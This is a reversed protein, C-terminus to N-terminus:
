TVWTIISTPSRRRRGPAAARDVPLEVQPRDGVRDDVRPDVGAPMVSSSATASITSPPKWSSASARALYSRARSDDVWSDVYKTPEISIHSISRSTRRRAAAARGAIRAARVRDRLRPHDAAEALRGAEDVPRVELRDDGVARRRRRQEAPDQRSQRDPRVAHREARRRRSEAEPRKPTPVAGASATTPPTLERAAPRDPLRAAERPTPCAGSSTPGRSRGAAGPRRASRMSRPAGAGARRRTSRTSGCRGASCRARLRRPRPVRRGGLHQRRDRDPRRRAGAVRRAAARRADAGPRAAGVPAPPDLLVRVLDAVAWAEGEDLGVERLGPPWSAPSACSTTGPAARPRRRRRRRRARRDPRARALGLLAARDSRRRGAADGVAFVRETRARTTRPSRRRRRRRGRDGRRDRRPVGAYRRELEDLQTPPRADRRPRGPRPRRRLGGPAARHVPELQLERLAEDLSPVGRAASGRRRAAGVARRQRRPGRPVGLLRPVPLRRAVPAPGREWLEGARACTSSGPGRTASSSSPAGPRQAPGPGRGAVAPRAAEVRRAGQRAYARRTASRARPRRSGTTTSSWRASRGAGNSYAFVDEDVGGGDTVVDYLLFDHPRPSCAGGTSSRSSRASTATSWARTPGSTSTARRFEMGYKEGFGEVQGHGFMPLGPLTALLTAVGFYKDGKGFQEVATKEDPNNMFNVYRKLIEPDFELTDKIVQRYGANDEDRLMHMFASNYVRHM